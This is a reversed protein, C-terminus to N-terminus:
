GTVGCTRLYARACSVSRARQQAITLLMGKTKADGSFSDWKEWAAVARESLGQIQGKIKEIHDM